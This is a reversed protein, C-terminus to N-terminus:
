IGTIAYQISKIICSASGSGTTFKTSHLASSTFASVPLLFNAQCIYNGAQNGTIVQYGGNIPYTTGGITYGTFTIGQNGNTYWQITVVVSVFYQYGIAPVTIAGQGQYNTSPSMTSNPNSGYTYCQGVPQLLAQTVVPSGNVIVSDFAVSGGLPPLESQSMNLYVSTPTSSGGSQVQFSRGGVNQTANRCNAVRTVYGAAITQFDGNSITSGSANYMTWTTGEFWPVYIDAAYLSTPPITAIFNDYRGIPFYSVAGTSYSIAFGIDTRDEGGRLINVRCSEPLVRTDGYLFVSYYSLATSTGVDVSVSSGKVRYERIWHPDSDNSSSVPQPTVLSDSEVAIVNNFDDYWTVTFPLTAVPNNFGMQTFILRLTNYAQCEAQPIFSASGNSVNQGLLVQKAIGATNMTQGAPNAILTSTGDKTVAWLSAGSNWSMTATPQLTFSNVTGVASTNDLYVTAPGQNYLTVDTSGPNTLQQPTTTIQFSSM